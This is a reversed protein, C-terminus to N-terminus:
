SKSKRKGGEKFRQTDASYGCFGKWIYLLPVTEFDTAPELVYVKHLNWVPHLNSKLEAGWEGAQVKRFTNKFTHM